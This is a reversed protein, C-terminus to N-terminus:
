FLRLNYRYGFMRRFSSLCSRSSRETCVHSRASSLRCWTTCLLIVVPDSFKYIIIYKVALFNRFLIFTKKYGEKPSKRQVKRIVYLPPQVSFLQYENGTM